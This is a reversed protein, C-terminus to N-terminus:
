QKKGFLSKVDKKPDPTEVNESGKQFMGQAPTQDTEVEEAESAPTSSGEDAEEEFPAAEEKSEQEDVPKKAKPAAKKVKPAVKTAKAPKTDTDVTVSISGDVLELETTGSLELGARENILDIIDQQEITVSIKMPDEEIEYLTVDVRPNDKDVAGFSSIIVPLHEYNDDPLIGHETLADCLFKDVVSCVNGVDFKRRTKPYVEYVIVCRNLQPLTELTPRVTESFLIKAQNLVQFHSNRYVNLNLSFLKKKRKGLTLHSPVSFKKIFTLKQSPM